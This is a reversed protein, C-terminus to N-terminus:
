FTEDQQDGYLFLFGHKGALGPPFKAGRCRKSQLVITMELVM